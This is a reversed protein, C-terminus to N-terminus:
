DSISAMGGKKKKEIVKSSLTSYYLLRRAKFVLVGRFRKVNRRLLQEEISFAGNRNMGFRSALYSPSHSLNRSKQINRSVIELWKFLLKHNYETYLISASILLFQFFPTLVFCRALRRDQVEEIVM